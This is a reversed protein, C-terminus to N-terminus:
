YPQKLIPNSTLILDRIRDERTPIDVVQHLNSDNILDLLMNHQQQDPKGSIVFNNSWDIHGLNFDGGIIITSNTQKDIRKLSLKLQELATGNDSPPRYFSAPQVNKSCAINIEVWVIECYTKLEKIESSVFDKTIAILVGGHSQENKNPPRDDRYVNYLEPPFYDYSSTDSDLWTETGMIIDPKVTDIIELLDPKKNKISQFNINLIKLAKKNKNPNYRKRTSEHSPPSKTIPSIPSSSATPTGPSGICGFSTQQNSLSDFMNSTEITTSNFFSTSFNPMGCQICHWSLNSNNM